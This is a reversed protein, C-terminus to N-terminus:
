QYHSASHLFVFPTMKIEKFIERQYLASLPFFACDDVTEITFAPNCIFEAYYHVTNGGSDGVDIEDKKPVLVYGTMDKIIMALELQQVNYEAPMSNRYYYIQKGRSHYDLYGISRIEQFLSILLKTEPESAAIDLADKKRWLSCPFNRNIDIGRGNYKWLYYPIGKAEIISRLKRNEIIDFGQLAISYGDPNLVPVVVFRIKELEKKKEECYYEMMSLLVMPNLSERGHVGGTLFVSDEGLGVLLLIIPRGDLSRGVIDIKIYDSYHVSLYQAYAMIDNYFFIQEWNVNDM